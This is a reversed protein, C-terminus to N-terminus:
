GSQIDLGKSIDGSDLNFQLRRTDNPMEEQLWGFDVSANGSDGSALKYSFEALNLFASLCPLLPSM